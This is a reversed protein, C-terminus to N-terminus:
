WEGLFYRGMKYTMESLIKKFERSTPNIVLKVQFGMKDLKTTVEEADQVAFPLDPWKDYDSIGVVLARYDKYLFLDRGEPSVVAVGRTAASLDLPSALAITFLSIIIFLSLKKM